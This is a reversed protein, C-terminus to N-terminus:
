IARTNQYEITSVMGYSDVFFKLMWYDIVLITQKNPQRILFIKARETSFESTIDSM